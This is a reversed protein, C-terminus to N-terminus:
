EYHHRCSLIHIVGDAVRYVLRHEQTIRRSWWGSLNHRLPEPKGIGEAEGNATIDDLLRNIKRASPRDNAVTWAYDTWAEDAFDLKM